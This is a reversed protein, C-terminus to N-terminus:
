GASAPVGYGPVTKEASRANVLFLQEL